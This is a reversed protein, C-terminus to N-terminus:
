LSCHALFPVKTVGFLVSFVESLCGGLKISGITLGQLLFHHSIKPHVQYSSYRLSSGPGPLCIALSLDELTSHFHDLRITVFPRFLLYRLLGYRLSDHVGIGYVLVAYAPQNGAESQRSRWGCTVM